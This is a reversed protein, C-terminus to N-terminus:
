ALKAVAEAGEAHDVDVARNRGARKAAYLARDAQEMVQPLTAGHDPWRAIGISCGVRAAQGAVLVPENVAAILRGAIDAICPSKTGAGTNIVVVFEDGGIRAVLDEERLCSALRAAVQHLVADGAHHGLTDNVPKFGDLDICLVTFAATEPRNALTDAFQELFRRNPLGTLRDQYAADQMRALAGQTDTLSAILARLSRSLDRVEDAGSVEPIEVGPEGHRLRVAAVAIARLPRTIFGAAFWAFTSFLLAFGAGWALIEQRLSVADAYAAEIPQRALVTWGLGEYNGHGPSHAYGVVYTTGDPWTEVDWGIGKRRAAAVSPVQLPHGLMPPPGLLVTDDAAVTFTELGLRERMPRLLTNEVERAWRWSFHTALVGVTTGDDALLPTAVDVFKMPEGSPNPLLKALMVADHVDGVFHGKIGNQFVPRKTLDAGLLVGGSSARVIGNVDMMGVWALTHDTAKLEDVVRQAKAPDRLADIKALVSVQNSRAWMDTDLKEAMQYAAESLSHGIESELQRESRSGVVSSMLGAMGITLAAGFVAVVTRLDKKWPM